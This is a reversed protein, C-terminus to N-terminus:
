GNINQKRQIEKKSQKEQSYVFRPKPIGLVKTAMGLGCLIHTFYYPLAEKTEYDTIIFSPRNINFPSPSIGTLVSISTIVLLLIMGIHISLASLGAAKIKLM